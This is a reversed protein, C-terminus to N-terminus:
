GEAGGGRRGEAQEPMVIQVQSGPFPALGEALPVDDDWPPVFTFRATGSRVSLKGSWHLVYKKISGLGQGRGPDRFRSTGHVLAAELAKGDDWRDGHKKAEVPALSARFGIGPDSVAIVVVRRGGLRKRWNYANVAAWGSTGAHEVVNQSAESVAMTFRMAAGAPLKLQGTLIRTAAEQITNVAQHVDESARIPMIPLLVNSETDVHRRPVKGHLEFYEAAYKFFATKAWYSRVEENEPITMQPTEAGAERLGQGATLLAIFGYPSAWKTGRADFLLREGPPWGGMREALADLGKDDLYQPVEIVRM